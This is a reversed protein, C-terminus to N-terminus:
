VFSYFEKKKFKSSKIENMQKKRKIGRGGEREDERMFNNSSGIEIRMVRWRYEGVM